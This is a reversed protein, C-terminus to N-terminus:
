RQRLRAAGRRLLRWVAGPHLGFALYRAIDDAGIAFGYHSGLVQLYLQQKRRAPLAPWKAVVNRFAAVIVPKSQRSIRDSRQDHHLRYLARDVLRAAGFRAVIRLNFDLDQWAPLAEDYLGVELAASRRLFLQNGICNQALLADFTACCPKSTTLSGAPGVVEDQTYLAAFPVGGTELAAAMAVLAALREPMFEDDDDLGTIWDARAARIALNRAHPAGAATQNRLVRVRPEVAALRELYTATGDRSGDDVVVLEFERHTQALVSAVARQLLECRDKTPLYVSVRM